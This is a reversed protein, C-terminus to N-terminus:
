EFILKKIHFVLRNECFAVAFSDTVCFAEDAEASVAFLFFCLNEHGVMGFGEKLNFLNECLAFELNDIVEALDRSDTVSDNLATSEEVFAHEYGVLNNFADAAKAVKSGKMIGGVNLTDFGATLNEACLKRLNNNEVVSEM